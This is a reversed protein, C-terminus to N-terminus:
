FHIVRSVLETTKEDEGNKKQDNDRITRKIIDENVSKTAKTNNLRHIPEVPSPPSVSIMKELSEAISATEPEKDEESVNSIYRSSGINNGSFREVSWFTKMFWICVAVISLLLIGVGLVRIIKFFPDLVSKPLQASNAETKNESKIIQTSSEKRQDNKKVLTTQENSVVTYAPNTLAKELTPYIFIIMGILSLGFAFFILNRMEDFM